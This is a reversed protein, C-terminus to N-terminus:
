NENKTILKDILQIAKDLLEVARGKVNDHVCQQSFAEAVVEIANAMAEVQNTKERAVEVDFLSKSM